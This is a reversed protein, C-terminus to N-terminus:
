RLAGGLSRSIRGHLQRIAARARVAIDIALPLANQAPLQQGAFTGERYSTPEYYRYPEGKTLLWYGYPLCNARPKSPLTDDLLIRELEAESEPEYVCDFGRYSADGLLISVKGLFSAEIGVTSHFVAVRDASSVLAYSDLGCDAPLLIVNDCELARWRRMERPALKTMRPHLRIVLEVDPRAKVWTSLWNLAEAQTNFLVPKLGDEVAAFEDVSSAFYVIRRRGEKALTRGVQQAEMFPAHLQLVAARNRSFFSEGIKAGDEGAQAWAKRLLKRSYSQNHVTEQELYYRAYSSSIEHYIAPIGAHRAAEAMGKTYALRGNFVLVSEPRYRRILELTHYYARYSSGLLRDVLERHDSIDPSTDNLFSILSSLAGLGLAAGDVRFDRLSEISHIGLQVSTPVPPEAGDVDPRIITVGRESMIKELARVRKRKHMRMIYDTRPHSHIVGVDLFAFGVKRGKDAERLCIECATELQPTTIRAEVSLLDLGYEPPM